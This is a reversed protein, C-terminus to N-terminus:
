DGCGGCDAISEIRLKHLQLERRRRRAERKFFRKDKANKRLYMLRMYAQVFTSKPANPKLTTGDRRYCLKKYTRLLPKAADIVNYSPCLMRALSEICLANVVLTAYNADIRVRHKRILGLIGRLVLGVDMNSHYGHCQKQFLEDMDHTFAEREDIGMNNEMSFQLAFTAAERGNGEGISALLGIFTSSERESLQAVM